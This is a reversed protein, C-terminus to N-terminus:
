LTLAIRLFGDEDLGRDRPAYESLEDLFGRAKPSTQLIATAGDLPAFSFPRPANELPDPSQPTALYDRLVDQIRLAPLPVLQPHNAIPFNGGGNARYNNTAVVFVRDPTIPVGNVNADRVRASNPSIIRGDSDFRAPQSLDFQCSMGHLLDLNHGARQPDVLLTADKLSLQNFVGASMELWDLVQAGTAVVARLENPFVHLDALHRLSIEGAPVETYYRPGARGGFKAPAVASLVPLDSFPTNRLYPRLAAAQAAAMFALGRDPACFSFYSHMPRDVRGVPQAARTRTATHAAALLQKIEPDEPVPVEDAGPHIARVETKKGVIRWKNAADRDLQLDIVGLHSGAWGPMVVPTNHVLGNSCDVADLGEHAPGPLTLHTHGAVIADIQNIEALPIVANELGPAAAAQVLGTHALAIVLDCGQERLEVASARATALIDQFAVRGQLKHAEWLATQPPLVSLIGIRIPEPRGAHWVERALIASRLWPTNASPCSANCCVVPFPSQETIQKLFGIGSGFDHNGLGVADYGLAAFAQPLPHASACSETAWDGLPTGQLGDGNDFLLVLGNHDLAQQRAQRILSATRTFGIHPDACDAYYDYGTLNMHLDSTALIRVFSRSKRNSGLPVKTKKNM